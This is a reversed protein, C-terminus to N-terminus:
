DDSVMNLKHNSKLAPPKSEQPYGNEMYWKRGHEGWWDIWGQLEDHPSVDDHYAMVCDVYGYEEIIPYNATLMSMMQLAEKESDFTVAEDLNETFGIGWNEIQDIAKAGQPSDTTLFVCWKVSEKHSLKRLKM